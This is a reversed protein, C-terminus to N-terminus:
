VTGTSCFTSGTPALEVKTVEAWSTEAALKSVLVAASAM